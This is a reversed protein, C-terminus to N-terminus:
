TFIQLQCCQTGSKQDTAVSILTDKYRRKEMIHTTFRKEM